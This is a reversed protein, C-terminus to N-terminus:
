YKIENLEITIKVSDTELDYRKGQVAFYKNAIFFGNELVKGNAKIKGFLKYTEGDCTVFSGDVLQLSVNEKEFSFSELSGAKDGSNCFYFVDNQSFSDIEDKTLGEAVFTYEAIKDDLTVKARIEQWFFACLIVLIVFIIISFDLINFKIKKSM